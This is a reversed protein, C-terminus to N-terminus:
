LQLSSGYSDYSILVWVHMQRDPNVPPWHVLHVAQPSHVVAFALRSEVRM